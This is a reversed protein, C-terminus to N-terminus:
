VASMKTIQAMIKTGTFYLYCSKRPALPLVIPVHYLANLQIQEFAISKEPIM